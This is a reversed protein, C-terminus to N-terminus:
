IFSLHSMEDTLVSHLVVPKSGIVPLDRAHERELLRKVIEFRAETLSFEGIEIVIWLNIGGTYLAVGIGRSLVM